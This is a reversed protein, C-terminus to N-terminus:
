FRFVQIRNNGSDVVAVEDRKGVAAWWPYALQGPERGALGWAGIGRGTTKDILQVRNNGFETVVLHGDSDKALGRPFRFQGLESGVSGINRVFSGDTKFVVIRHNSCDTVYVTDGDIVMADPRMFQGDDQGFSGITRIVALSKPDFVQIRDNDGYESVYINGSGDFAVHTPYIFQGPGTGYSGWQRLHEGTPSYVMVRNYHTDAVFLDGNPGVAMGVPKGLEYQPMRWDASVTGDREIRQIRAARDCVFFCDDKASYCIARPYIVQGRSPGTEMWIAQPRTRSDCGAHLLLAVVLLPAILRMRRAVGSIRLGAWILLVMAIGLLLVTSMLLLSGELMDDSRQMHVWGMLTPILMQPRQPSLLVSTSIETMSLIMVLVGAALLVPWAIPWVVDITSRWRGAGDVAAMDRLERMPQSWSALGALLALWGFRGVYAIVMVPVNNYIWALPDRGAIELLSLPWPAPRNYIRIDAIALLEGGILFVGLALGLLVRSPRISMLLAATLAVLAALGAYLMSGVVYPGAWSWSRLLFTVGEGHWRQPSISHVMAWLPVVLTVLLVLISASKSLWGADLLRPWSEVEVASEASHRRVLLIVGIALLAMVVLLPFATIVAAAARQAQDSAMSGSGATVGAIVSPSNASSAGTEFITRMETAVVSIGSREYVGFEQMALIAVAAFTAVTPAFLQRLTIRWKAGDLVAQQQWHSDMRRLSLGIGIAPLPWLWAALTWICRLIDPWEAPIFTVGIIRFFQLWGYTYTISPMILALPLLFILMRVMWGRGRGLVITAPWALIVALVAAAGNYAITRGLLRADFLEFRFAIQPAHVLVQLALWGLPLLCCLGVILWLAVAAM